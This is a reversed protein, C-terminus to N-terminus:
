VSVRLSKVCVEAVTKLTIDGAEHGYTDNIQKFFDLGWPSKGTQYIIHGVWPVLSGALMSAAQRRYSPAARRWMNLLMINGCLISLNIYAVNVWYWPGKTFSLMPFPGNTNVSVTHYYLHHYNDTCHLILTIIPIWFLALLVPRTLWRERGIYQIVLISWLAPIISIGFYQFKSWFLMGSLTPSAFEFAYGLSYVSTALMLCALVTAGTETRRRFAFLALVSSIGCAIFLSILYVQYGWMM